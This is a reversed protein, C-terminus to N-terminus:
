NVARKLCDTVCNCLKARIRFAKLRLASGGGHEAALKKRTEIKEHGQGAYYVTVLNRNSESLKALCTELCLLSQEHFNSDNPQPSPMEKQSLQDIRPEKTAELWIRRAVGYFLAVPSSYQDGREIIRIVRDVTKDFLQDSEVCAKWIFYRLIKRRIEEYKKAADDPNASLWRLFREFAERTLGPQPPMAGTVINCCRNPNLPDNITERYYLPRGISLREGVTASRCKLKLAACPQLRTKGTSSDRM